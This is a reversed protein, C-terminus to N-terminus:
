PKEGVGPLFPRDEDLRLWPGKNQLFAHLRARGLNSTDAVLGLLATENGAWVQRLFLGDMVKAAEIIKALAAQEAAPLQGVQVTLDIPALRANLRSLTAVDPLPEAARAALQPLLATTAILLRTTARM